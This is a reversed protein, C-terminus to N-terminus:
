EKYIFDAWTDHGPPDIGERKIVKWVTLFLIKIDLWLSWHDVYWLDYALKDNWNLINRGNIQAWGTIGPFVDHRRSQEPTYRILFELLMPRPGVLSMKGALVVFLEPLEDLSYNRLFRGLRSVRQSDPLLKGEEDRHNSMTRFKYISFRRGLYGPRQQCFIIPAGDIIWILLGIIVMLPLAIVMGVLTVILDFLRKSVPIGKPFM